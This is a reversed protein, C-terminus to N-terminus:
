VGSFCLTANTGGFGFSNTLAIKRKSEWTQKVLPVYNLDMEEDVCDLNLTPPLVGHHCSLVTFAAEIAGAAGLLHGVAGKTSSVSVNYAHKGFLKKIALNEVADGLPTSTAHANIYTVEEPRIGADNIAANMCAIAGSGDPSPATIHSADASLGYGLLDAYINAGRNIAHQKEELVLVAAGEGMVFGDRKPHFPMSSQKPSDNYKTSLARAKAFGAIAAPTLCAETGGAVMVDCDNHMIFRFADGIAHAGTTCATSVCHNPGKLKHEISIHGAAMNLLIRPVFFPSVSRYGEERLKRSTDDIVELDVMGMGLSVGTRQQQKDSQPMWKADQLAEAAAQCAFLSALSHSRSPTRSFQGPKTGKPVAAAIQCPIDKIPKPLISIGCEGNVLKNWVFTRTCGLPSVIGIGTVCVKRCSTAASCFVNSILVM